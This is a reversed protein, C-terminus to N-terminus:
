RQPVFFAASRGKGVACLKVHVPLDIRLEAFDCDLIKTLLVPGEVVRVFAVVHPPSWTRAISYSFISGKGSAERWAIKDSHCFPCVARPHWHHQGCSECQPLLFRGEAAAAWFPLLEPWATVYPDTKWSSSVDNAAM